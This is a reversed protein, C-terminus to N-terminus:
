AGTSRMGVYCFGLAVIALFRETDMRGTWQETESEAKKAEVRHLPQSSVNSLVENTSSAEGPSMARPMNHLELYDANSM